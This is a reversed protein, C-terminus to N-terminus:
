SECRRVPELAQVQRSRLPFTPAQDYYYCDYITITVIVLMTVITTTSISTSAKMIILPVTHFRIRSGSQRSIM